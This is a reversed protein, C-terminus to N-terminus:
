SSLKKTNRRWNKEGRLNKRLFRECGIEECGLFSGDKDRLYVVEGSGDELWLYKGWGRFSDCNPFKRM